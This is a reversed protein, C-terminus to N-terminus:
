ENYWKWFAKSMWGQRNSGLEGVFIRDIDRLHPRLNGYAEQPTSSTKAFWVSELDKANHWCDGLAEIAEFLEAYDNDGDNLNYTVILM